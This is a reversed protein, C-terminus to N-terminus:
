WSGGGGGGFGGGSFGGGSFGSGGGSSIGSGRPSAFMASALSSTASSITRSFSYPSFTRVGGHSIYWMPTEQYVGEFAKAWKDVVDLAIAYPLFRSFLDKDGIRVLRDKEARNMFEQFGLIDMYVSAGTRTKAPMVRSFALVPLATLLGAFVGKLTSSQALFLASFFGVAAVFIGATIYLKRVTNPSNLFYGKRVLEGYMTKKLSELHIYFENKMDSVMRGQLKGKFINKMLMKEFPSLDGDPEGAKSIYYDTSEFILGETKMEEIKIYGKVGLGIITSTIDRSDLKEDILTGTEGPTLPKDGYKPPEYRVTVAERVRPDKGKKNWLSIMFILSFVPLIFVWNERLNLMWLLRKWLSPPSVLGKDWGFAITFGERFKLNKETFFEGSNNFTEVKCDSEKAGYAGTYCAAWMDESKKDLKLFVNASAERIQAPWYNGTVNWYLEDHDDFFLIANEVKYSVLYTQNGEVYKDPDGIRINVVNGKVNIKYKWDRGSEDTVSLVKLPTIITSGREDTYKFPIERFIGHKTRHFEVDITERATFSADKNITIDSHFKNITFDQASVPSIFFAITLSTICSVLFTICSSKKYYDRHSKILKHQTM